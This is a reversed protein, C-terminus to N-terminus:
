NYPCPTNHEHSCHGCFGFSAKPNGPALTVWFFGQCPHQSGSEPGELANSTRLRQAKEGTRKQKESIRLILEETRCDKRRTQNWVRFVKLGTRVHERFVKYCEKKRVLKLNKKEKKSEIKHDCPKITYLILSLSRPMACLAYCCTAPVTDPALPRSSVDQVTLLFCASSLTLSHARFVARLAETVWHRAEKLLALGGVAGGLTGTATFFCTSKCLVLTQNVADVVM